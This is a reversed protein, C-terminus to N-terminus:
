NNIADKVRIEEWLFHPTSYGAALDELCQIGSIPLMASKTWKNGVVRSNFRVQNGKLGSSTHYIINEVFTSDNELLFSGHAANLLEGDLSFYMLTFKGPGIHYISKSPFCDNLLDVTTDPFHILVSEMGWIGKYINELSDMKSTADDSGGLGTIPKCAIGAFIILSLVALFFNSRKMIEIM